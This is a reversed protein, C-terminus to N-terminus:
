EGTDGGLTEKLIQRARNLLTYITNVNKGLIHGIEPATYGEYYHLYVVDKYKAPLSLVAELVERHRDKLPAPQELIQDLPVTNKRFFSKLLDKCANITVRIFWAKEHEPSEFSASSLVYKLFVTQFIDETDAYNKLHIMCLRRVMDSYQDIARRAEEESRM